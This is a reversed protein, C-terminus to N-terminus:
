LAAMLGAVAAKTHDFAAQRGFLGPAAIRLRLGRDAIEQELRDVAAGYGALKLRNTVPARLVHTEHRPAGPKVVGYDTCERWAKDVFSPAEGQTWLEGDISAPCECTVYSRGAADIQGGYLGQAAIRYSIPEFDFIHHYLVDEIADADTVFMYRVMSVGHTKAGAATQLGAIAGLPALADAAWLVADFRRAAGTEFQAEVGGGAVPALGKLAAGYLKEVGHAALWAEVHDCFALMGRGGGPYSSNVEGFGGRGFRTAALRDDLAPHAKLVAMQPDPLHKLRALATSDLCEQTFSSADRLYIREMLRTLLAGATEGYRAKFYDPLPQQEASRDPAAAAVELLEGTIRDREARPLSSLDPLTFGKTVVGSFISSAKGSDLPLLDGGMVESVLAHLDDSLFEFVQTGNDLVFGGVPQSRMVGGFAPAADLLTVTAGAERLLHAAAFGKFAAGVVAVSPKTEAM